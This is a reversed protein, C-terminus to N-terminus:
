KKQVSFNNDIFMQKAPDGPDGRRKRRLDKAVKKELIPKHVYEIEITKKKPNLNAIVFTESLDWTLVEYSFMRERKFTGGLIDVLNGFLEDKALTFSSEDKFSFLISSSMLKNKYFELRTEHRPPPELIVGAISGDLIIKRLNNSYKNDSVLKVSSSDILNIADKRSTGFEFGHPVRIDVQSGDVSLPFLVCASFFLALCVRACYM